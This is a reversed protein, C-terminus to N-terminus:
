YWSYSGGYLKKYVRNYGKSAEDEKDYANGYYNLATHLNQTVGRGAEYFVGLVYCCEYYADTYEKQNVVNTLWTACSKYDENNMYYVALLYAVDAKKYGLNYAKKYYTVSDTPSAEECEQAYAFAVKGNGSEIAKDVWFKKGIRDLKDSLAFTQIIDKDAKLGKELAEKYYRASAPVDSKFYYDSFKKATQQRIENINRERDKAKETYKKALEKNGSNDYKTALQKWQRIENEEACNNSYSYINKLIELSRYEDKAIVDTGKDYYGYLAWKARLVGDDAAQQIWEYGNVETQQLFRICAKGYSFKSDPNTIVYEEKTAEVLYESHCFGTLGHYNVQTWEGGKEVVQVCEDENLRVIEDAALSGEKRLILRDGDGTYVKQYEIRSLIIKQVLLPMCSILAIGLCVAAVIAVSKKTILRGFKTAEKRITGTVGRAIQTKKTIDIEKLVVKKQRVLLSTTLNILLSQTDPKKLYIIKPPFANPTSEFDKLWCHLSEIKIPQFLETQNQKSISFNDLEQFQIKELALTDTSKLTCFGLSVSLNQRFASSRLEYLFLRLQSYFDNDFDNNESIFLVEQTPMNVETFHPVTFKPEKLPTIKSHEVFTHQSAPIKRLLLRVSGLILVIISYAALLLVLTSGFVIGFILLPSDFFSDVRNLKELFLKTTRSYDNIISSVEDYAIYQSTFHYAFPVGYKELGSLASKVFRNNSSRFEPIIAAKVDGGFQELVSFTNKIKEADIGYLEFLSSSENKLAVLIFFKIDQNALEEYKSHTEDLFDIGNQVIHSYETLKTNVAPYSKIVLDLLWDVIRWDINDSQTQIKILTNNFSDASDEILSTLKTYTPSFSFANKQKKLLAVSGIAAIACVAFIVIFAIKSFPFVPKKPSFTGNKKAEESTNM